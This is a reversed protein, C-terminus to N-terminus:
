SRFRRIMHVGAWLAAMFLSIQAFLEGNETYFTKVPDNPFEVTSNLFGEGFTGDERTEFKQTVRGRADVVCTVGTNAARIMPLRNEVCRFIANNLHQESGASKLFWGDNTLTIFIQARMIAFKRALDGLTDEFCILPAIHAPKKNMLLIKPEPGFNFDDPVLDGVLWAFIPFASHRLPVYEGFPVLHMKYYLQTMRGKETILAAANFDGYPALHVTGLLFDGNFKEVIDRVVQLSRQDGEYFLPGPTAAEPWIILDPNIAMAQETMRKHQDLIKEEFAPDRKEHIPVAGQIAAFTLKTSLPPAKMVQRVGYGFVLVVLLITLTFDFHTKLTKTRVEVILRKVTLVIMMNVMVLLFSIGAVGTIDAIQILAINKHLTVGLANWGFGTFVVGRLWETGVWAFSGLLAVRLNNASSLWIMGSADKDVPRAVTGVFWAWLAPYVALYLSLAIWGPVTVTILWHLSGLFYGFGGLLGVLLLRENERKGWHPGFWLAAILPTLAVWALGGQNVPAYCLSLLLGSLLACLWPWFRKM